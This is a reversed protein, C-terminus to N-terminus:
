SIRYIAIRQDHYLMYILITICWCALKKQLEYCYIIFFDKLIIIIKKELSFTSQSIYCQMMDYQIVYEILIKGSVTWKGGHSVSIQTIIYPFFSLFLWLEIYLLDVEFIVILYTIFLSNCAKPWIMVRILGWFVEMDGEWARPSILKRQASIPSSIAFFM